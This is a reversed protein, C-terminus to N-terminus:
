ELLIKSLADELLIFSIGDELLLFEIAATIEWTHVLTSNVYLQMTDENPMTFYSNSDYVAIGDEFIPKGDIVTQPTSQDVRLYLDDYIPKYTYASPNRKIYTEEAM